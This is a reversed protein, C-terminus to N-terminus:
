PPLLAWAFWGIAFCLKSWASWSAVLVMHAYAITKAEAAVILLPGITTQPASSLSLTLAFMGGYCVSGLFIAWISGALIPWSNGVPSESPKTLLLYCRLPKLYDMNSSVFQLLKPAM